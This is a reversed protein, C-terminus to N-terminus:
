LTNMEPNASKDILIDFVSRRALRFRTLLTVGKKICTSRPRAPHDDALPFVPSAPVSDLPVDTLHRGGLCNVILGSVPRIEVVPDGQSIFSGKRLGKLHGVIGSAPARIVHFKEKVKIKPHRLLLRPLSDSTRLDWCRLVMLTDGLHVFSNEMPLPREVQGTVGAHVQIPESNTRIMGPASGFDDIEILPLSILASVILVLLFVYIAQSIKPTRFNQHNHDYPILERAQSHKM